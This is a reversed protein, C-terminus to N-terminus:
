DGAKQTKSFKKNSIQRANNTIKQLQKIHEPQVRDFWMELPFIRNLGSKSRFLICPSTSPGFCGMQYLNVYFSNPIVVFPVRQNRQAIIMWYRTAAQLSCIYVESIWTEWQQNAHKKGKDLIDFPSYRSYGRKLSFTILKTLPIGIPDTACVDGNQGHTTKGLKHRSTARAGSSHTRWFIDDRGPEWWESLKKCIEREFSAGKPMQYEM